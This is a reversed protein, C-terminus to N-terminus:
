RECKESKKKKKQDEKASGSAFAKDLALHESEALQILERFSKTLLNM